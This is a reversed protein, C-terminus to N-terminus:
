RITQLVSQVAAYDVASNQGSYYGAGTEPNPLSAWEKSLNLAFQKDSITGAKWQEYGRGNLLEIALRDQLEPTFKASDELGLNQKLARLTTRVIQYRGIASSNWSNTPHQLMASQLADIEALTMDTLIVDGNTFAGYSLTENYGDGKDTGETFGILNLVPMAPNAEDTAGGSAPEKTFDIQFNVAFMTELKGEQLAVDADGTISADSIVPATCASLLLAGFVTIAKTLPKM